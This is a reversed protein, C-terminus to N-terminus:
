YPMKDDDVKADLPGRESLVGGESPVGGARENNIERMQIKTISGNTPVFDFQLAWSGDKNLFSTGIRTWFGKKNPDRQTVACLQMMKSM